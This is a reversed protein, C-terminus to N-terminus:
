GLGIEICCGSIKRLTYLLCARFMLRTNSTLSHLVNILTALTPFNLINVLACSISINARIRVEIVPGSRGGILHLEDVIFLAINQVNKRQKWRRSLMDWKDPTSIIINGRELAKTDAATEGILEVVNLGLGDPGFQAFGRVM